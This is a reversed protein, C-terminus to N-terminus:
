LEHEFDAGLESESECRRGFSFIPQRPEQIPEKTGLEELDLPDILPRCLDCREIVRILGEFLGWGYRAKPLQVHGGHYIDDSFQLSPVVEDNLRSFVGERVPPAYQYKAVPTFM